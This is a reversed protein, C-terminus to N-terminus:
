ALLVHMYKNIKPVTYTATVVKAVRSLYKHHMNSPTDHMCDAKLKSLYREMAAALPPAPQTLFKFSLIDTQILRISFESFGLMKRAAAKKSLFKM